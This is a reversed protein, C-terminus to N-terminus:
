DIVLDVDYSNVNQGLPYDVWIAMMPLTLIVQAVFYYARSSRGSSKQKGVKSSMM